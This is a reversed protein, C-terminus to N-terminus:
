RRSGTNDEIPIPSSDDTAFSSIEHMEVETDLDTSLVQPSTDLVPPVQVPIQTPAPTISINADEQIAHIEASETEM